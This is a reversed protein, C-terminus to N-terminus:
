DARPLASTEPLLVRGGSHGVNSAGRVGGGGVDERFVPAGASSARTQLRLILTWAERGAPRLARNMEM